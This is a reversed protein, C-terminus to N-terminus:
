SFIFNGRGLFNGFLLGLFFVELGEFLLDFLPGLFESFGFLSKNLYDLSFVAVIEAFFDNVTFNSSFTDEVM